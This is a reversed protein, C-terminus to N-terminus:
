CKTPSAAENDTPWLQGHPLWIFLLFFYLFFVLICPILQTKLGGKLFVFKPLLLFCQYISIVLNQM